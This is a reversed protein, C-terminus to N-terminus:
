TGKVVKVMQLLGVISIICDCHEEQEAGEEGDIPVM